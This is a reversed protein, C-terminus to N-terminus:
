PVVPVQRRGPTRGPDQETLDLPAPRPLGLVRRPAPRAPGSRVRHSRGRRIVGLRQRLAAMVVDTLRGAAGAAKASGASRGRRRQEARTAIEPAASM